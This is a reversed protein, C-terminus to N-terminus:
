GSIKPQQDSTYTLTLGNDKCYSKLESESWAPLFKICVLISPAPCDHFTWDKLHKEKNRLWIKKFPYKVGQDILKQAQEPTCFKSKAM